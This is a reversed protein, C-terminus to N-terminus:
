LDPRGATDSNLAGAVHGLLTDKYHWKLATARPHTSPECSESQGADPQIPATAPV